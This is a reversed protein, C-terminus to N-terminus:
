SMTAGLKKRVTEYVVYSISVAPIVKMFNPTIGRYLGVPGENQIIYRFQGTMTDPQSIDNSVTRAQLRTRVLALPYSALQGCTSSCTGCALLALVGPEKLDPHRKVYFKKLTEYIALDIGAYPIIGLLNPVYGKYFCAFGEQKYMKTAFHMLGKDLQGTKRLALRTKLVELPYIITQSIAGASSGAVFREAVSLEKNKKIRQILRKMQEYAMFKFASEPAIKVVNIGNGRWFSKIGGEIYLYKVASFLNYRKQFTSHVQLFVKLRDLPATCTRSMCGAIGGAVLHRWWVGSQMEKASFDEPILSDEGIDIVLSHRWFEAIDRPDTSPYLLMFDKFEILDITGSDSKDMINVLNKARQNSIPIGLNHFYDKMETYDVFGDRNADLEEFVKELRKEHEMVYHLFDSFDVESDKPDRRMNDFIQPALKSPIYQVSQLATTLDRIDVTGDNDVDLFDYLERLKKEKEPTLGAHIAIAKEKSVTGIILPNPKKPQSKLPDIPGSKVFIEPEAEQVEQVKMNGNNNLDNSKSGDKRRSVEDKVEYTSPKTNSFSSGSGHREEVVMMRKRPNWGRRDNSIGSNQKGENSQSSQKKIPTSSYIPGLSVKSPVSAFPLSIDVLGNMKLGNNSHTSWSMQGSSAALYSAFEVFCYDIIAPTPCTALLRDYDDKKEPHSELYFYIESLVAPTVGEKIDEFMEELSRQSKNPPVNEGQQSKLKGVCYVVYNYLFGDKKILTLYPDLDIFTAAVFRQTVLKMSETARKNQANSGHKNFFSDLETVLRDIQIPVTKNNQFNESQKFICKLLLEVLKTPAGSSICSDLLHLSAVCGENIDANECLKVTIVNVSRVIHQHDTLHSTREDCLFRLLESFFLKLTTHTIRSVPLQQHMFYTLFNCLSRMLLNSDADSERDNLHQSRVISLQTALSKAIMDAKELMYIAYNNQDRFLYVLQSTADVVTQITTSSLAFVIKDINEPDFETLTSSAVSLASESRRPTAASRASNAIQSLQPPITPLPAYHQSSLSFRGRPVKPVTLNPNGVLFTTDGQDITTTEDLRRSPPNRSTSRSRATSKPTTDESIIRTTNPDKPTLRLTPEDSFPQSGARKIREDLMVKEKPNLNGIMTLAQDGIKRWVTVICNLAANRANSDREAICSAITKMARNPDAAINPGFYELFTNALTLCEAKQRSNKSDLAELIIPFIKSPVHITSTQSVIKKVLQRVVDKTDGSKLLLYPLFSTVDGDNLQMGKEEMEILISLLVELTKNLSQPNTDFFRFTAWKLILDCNNLIPLPDLQLQNQIQDLAKLHQKFDKSFLMKVFDPKAVAMFQDNLQQVHEETPNKFNWKLAKLSKEDKLRQNRQNPSTFIGSSDEPEPAKQPAPAVSRRGKSVSRPPHVATETEEPEEPPEEVQKPKPRVVKPGSPPKKTTAPPPPAEEAKHMSQVMESVLEGGTEQVAQDHAKEIQTMKTKDNAVDGLMNMVNQKGIAKMLSGIASFAAERSEPDSDGTCKIILPTLDKIAKKPATKSNLGRFVRSLFLNTQVKVSPNPKGLAGAVEDAMSELNTTKYIADIAEVLADKVIPKKEKFKEFIVPVFTSSYPAFSMRLGKALGAVVKAAVSAVNINSDKSLIRAVERTVEGYHAKPDLKPNDTLLKLLSELAEKRELWKTANLAEEFNSPLKPIIDVPDMFEWPDPEAEKKPAVFADAGSGSTVPESASPASATSPASQQTKAQLAANEEEAKEKGENIKASKLSDNVIDGALSQLVSEGTLRMIGGLALLSSERVDKDSDEAHKVLIPIVAKVFKKPHDSRGYRSLQRFVFNDMQQKIQPNPKGMAATVDDVINELNVLKALNDSCEILPDRLLPKKEKFKDFLPPLFQPVNPAFKSRLGVALANLMKVGNAQVNVNADKEIIHKLRFILDNYDAKSDLKPNKKVHNLLDEIADFREKWKTSVVNEEFKEPYVLAAEDMFDFPDGM